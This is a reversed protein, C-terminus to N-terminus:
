GGTLPAAASAAAGAVEIPQPAAASKVTRQGKAKIQRRRREPAYESGGHWDPETLPGLFPLGTM